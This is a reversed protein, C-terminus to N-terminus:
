IMKANIPAMAYMCGTMKDVYLAAKWGLFTSGTEKKPWTFDRKTFRSSVVKSFIEANKKLRSSVVNSFIEFKKAGFGVVGAIVNSVNDTAKMLFNSVIELGSVKVPGNSKMPNQMKQQTNEQINELVTVSVKSKNTNENPKYKIPFGTPTEFYHTLNNHLIFINWFFFSKM